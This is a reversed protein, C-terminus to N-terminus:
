CFINGSLDARIFYMNGQKESEKHWARPLESVLSPGEPPIHCLSHSRFLEAM